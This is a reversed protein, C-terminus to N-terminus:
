QMCGEEIFEKLSLDLNMLKLVSLTHSNIISDQPVPLFIINDSDNYSDDSDDYTDVVM